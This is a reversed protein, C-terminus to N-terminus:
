TISSECHSSGLSQNERSGRRDYHEAGATPVHQIPGAATVTRQVDGAVDLGDLDRDAELNGAANVLAVHVLAIGYLFALGHGFQFRGIEFGVRVKGSGLQMQSLGGQELQFVAAPGVFDGGGLGGHLLRLGIVIAGFEVEIPVFFGVTCVRARDGGLLEILGQAM